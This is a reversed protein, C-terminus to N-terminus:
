VQSNRSCFWLSVYFVSFCVISLNFVESRCREHNDGRGPTSLVLARKAGLKEVEASLKGISGAGFVVRMPLGTYTFDRM